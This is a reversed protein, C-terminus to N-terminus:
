AAGDREGDHRTLRLRDHAADRPALRRQRPALVTALRPAGQSTRDIPGCSNSDVRTHLRQGVYRRNETVYLNFNRYSMGQALWRSRM